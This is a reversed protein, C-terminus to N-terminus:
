YRIQIGLRVSLPAAPGIFRPDVRPDDVSAGSPIGPVGIGTPDGLVGFTAYRRNLANHIALSVDTSHSLAYRGYLNVVCFGALPTMQNSEDGRLPQSSQVSVNAGVNLRASPQGDIGAKFRHRPIGPLRDGPVVGIDGLADAGSNLPSPLRFRAQFTADILSYNAYVSVHEASYRLSAELGQRRTGPINQFYGESLSTAVAYIDDRVNARFLGLAWQWRSAYRGDPLGHGRLGAEWTRAVVQRLTPPDSALSSPLLCPAAPNACEIEGPTPVRTAEAVGAYATLADSAKVTVGLAPNIRAYHNSGSLATGLQDSLRIDAANYRASVTLATRKQWLWTDTLFAGLTATDSRLGVPTATYAGGEPTDVVTGSDSVVLRPDLTGVTASSAFRTSAKDVSAGLALANERGGLASKSTLQVSGGTSRSRLAEADREGLPIRGGQSLDTIPQGSTNFVPTSGDAQCLDGTWLAATCATYSTTNGNVVSQHFDRVYVSGQAALSDSIAYTVNVTTFGLRNANRQPNTFIADRHVALEQVPAASEGALQNNSATLSLDITWGARRVSAVTYFQRVSDPSSQRWGDADLLRAGAYLGWTEGHTGYEWRGQREHWSGIAVEGDGGADTFGNKMSLVVAGGLANLGYVPSSGLVDMRNVAFDPVLDWNVTDGFAENIRVGNQFVALGQPTGLVPSATFGRYVIDPQFPDDLNDNISVSGLGVNMADTLSAVGERAIQAARLTQVAGPVRDADVGAGPVPTAGVITIDALDQPSESLTVGMAGVVASYALSLVTLSAGYRRGSRRKWRRM